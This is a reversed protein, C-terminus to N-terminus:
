TFTKFESLHTIVFEIGAMGMSFFSLIILLVIASADSWVIDIGKRCYFYRLFNSRKKRM